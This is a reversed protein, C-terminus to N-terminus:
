ILEGIKMEIAEELEDTFNYGEFDEALNEIETIGAYFRTEDKEDSIEDLHIDMIKEFRVLASEQKEQEALHENLAETNACRM